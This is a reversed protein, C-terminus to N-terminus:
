ALPASSPPAARREEDPAPPVGPKGSAILRAPVGVATAGAPVDMLVVANAGIRADPGITVAGIIRCGAGLLAGDEITPPSSGNRQGVTIGGQLEVRSGIRRANLTTGTTHALYLGPGIPVAPTLEIGHLALNLAQLLMPIAPVSAVSAWHALRHMATARLGAHRLLLRLATRSSPHPGCWGQAAWAELDSRFPHIVLDSFVSM